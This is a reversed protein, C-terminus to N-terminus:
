AGDDGGDDGDHVYEEADEMGEILGPHDDYSELLETCQWFSHLRGAQVESQIEERLQERINPMGIHMWLGVLDRQILGDEPGM